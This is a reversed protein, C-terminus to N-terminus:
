RGEAVSGGRCMAAVKGRVYQVFEEGGLVRIDEYLGLVFRGVGRFSVVDAAFIWCGDRETVCSESAPYEELLLNHSLQGLSLEVRHREEGSFMFVDTYVQKHEDEHIWPVDLIEVSGMRSVKFTKNQHSKLEYCRVDLGDGMFLFPEVIRDSVTSSHPSSYGCLKVVLKQAMANKLTAVNRDVMKQVEPNTIDTLNYTREIKTRISAATLDSKGMSDLLKAVYEAERTNLAMNEHLRRFFPADRDLLYCTGSKVISFGCDRLYDFYYYLNRRTIGLRESLQLATYNANDTLLVILELERGYKNMRM